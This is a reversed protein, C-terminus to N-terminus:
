CSEIEGNQARWETKVPGIICLLNFINVIVSSGRVFVPSVTLVRVGGIEPAGDGSPVATSTSAM